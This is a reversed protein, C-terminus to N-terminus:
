SRWQHDKGILVLLLMAACGAAPVLLGTRLGGTRTSVLGVTWPMVAAGLGALAFMLSGVRRAREGFQKAMWAVLVPYIAAFGLGAVGVSLALPWFARIAVLTATGVLGTLL